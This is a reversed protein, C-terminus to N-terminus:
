GITCATANIFSLLLQVLTPVLFLCLAAVLRIVLKSQAEKMAKEDTGVVAKIFDIASLLVVLIPGIIKIYNLIINLMWGITGEENSFISDCGIAPNNFDSSSITGNIKEWETSNDNFPNTDVETVSGEGLQEKALDADSSSVNINETDKFTFTINKGYFKNETATSYLCVGYLNDKKLGYINTDKADRFAIGKIEGDIIYNIQYSQDTVPSLEYRAMNNSSSASFDVKFYYCQDTKGEWFSSNKAPLAITGIDGIIKPNALSGMTKDVKTDDHKQSNSFTGKGSKTVDGGIGKQNTYIEYWVEGDIVKEYVSPAVSSAYLYIDSSSKKAMYFTIHSNTNRVESTCSGSGCDFLYANVKFSNGDFLKTPINDIVEKFTSDSTNTFNIKIYYNSSNSKSNTIKWENNFLADKIYDNMKNAAEKSSMAFVNSPILMLVLFFVLLLIKNKM